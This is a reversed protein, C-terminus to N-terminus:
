QGFAPWHVHVDVNGHERVKQWVAVYVVVTQSEVLPKRQQIDVCHSGTHVLMLLVHM